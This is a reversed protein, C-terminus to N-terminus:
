IKIIILLYLMAMLIYLLIVLLIPWHTIISIVDKKISSIPPKYSYRGETVKKFLLALIGLVMLGVVGYLIASLVEQGSISTIETEIENVFFYQLLEAIANNLFHALIGAFISNTRVVYYGILLGLFIPGLLNTIDFHFIGFFISSVIIAKVTGRNEYAKLLLGRNLMEECIGPTLAIFFMGALLENINRPVPIPQPPINGLFQLLYIVLSNLMSAVFYAPVSMLVILVSPFLGPSNLRFTEKFDLKKIIAYVIVPGLIFLYENIVTLIYINRSVFDNAYDPGYIASSIGIIITLVFQSFIFLAAFIFFIFNAGTVTVKNKM